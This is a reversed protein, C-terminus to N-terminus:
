RIQGSWYQGLDESRLSLIRRRKVQNFREERLQSTLFCQWCTLRVAASSTTTVSLPTDVSGAGSKFPDNLSPVAQNANDNPEVSFALGRPTGATWRSAQGQNQSGHKHKGVKGQASVPCPMTWASVSRLLGPMVEPFPFEAELMAPVAGWFPSFLGGCAM